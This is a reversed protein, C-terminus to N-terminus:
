DSAPLTFCITSGTWPTPEIWIRGGLSEIAKRCFALGLGHGPYERGHLRKFPGFVLQHFAPDIGPGNDAVSFLWDAGTRRCAIEVRPNPTATYEIANRILHLLVKTLTEFSGMALPLPSHTVVAHRAAILEDVSLLAQQLVAEMDTASSTQGDSAAAWYGVIASLLSQMAATGQRVKGLFAVGDADLRGAQTESLLQSFAAVERLPELLNHAAISVFEEMEAAARDVARQTEACRLTEQNVAQRLRDIEADKQQREADDM